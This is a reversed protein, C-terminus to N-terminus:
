AAFSPVEQVQLDAPWEALDAGARNLLPLRRPENQYDWANRGAQKMFFPVGAARSQDRLTRAWDLVFPRAKGLAASEGGCVVWSIGRQKEDACPDLWAGFAMEDGHERCFLTAGDDGTVTDHGGCTPCTPPDLDITELLPECSLWRVRAPVKLLEPILRDAEEQTTVSVGPWVHSPWRELWHPPVMRQINEARKTLLLCDIASAAELAAFYFPRVREWVPDVLFPDSLSGVFVRPRHGTRLARRHLRRLACVWGATEYRQGLVGWTEVGRARLVRATTDVEAYCNKCGPSIKECGVVANVTAHAWAV